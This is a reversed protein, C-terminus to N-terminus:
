SKVDVKLGTSLRLHGDLIFLESPDLGERVIQDTGQEDGLLLQRIAVTQDEQVIYVYPGLQNYRIAKQPILLIDKVHAIPILVRVSQGPRWQDESNLVKGRMLLLGSRQDFHHDFFTVTASFKAESTSLPQLEVQQLNRPIKPFEKETVSFEVILPDMKVITALPDVQGQAILHGPHTDLKGIRGALPSKITCQELDWQAAYLRAEDLHIVAQAKEAEAELDDWETQAILDKEALEKFRALKKQVAKFSAHDMALQAQAERVKIEYLKSDIKFLPTGQEVYQGESVMVEKLAGSVQPRVEMFVSPQLLGISEVYLTMDKQIPNAAIVPIAATEEAVDSEKKSDCGILLLCSSFFILSKRM